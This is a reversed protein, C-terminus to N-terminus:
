YVRTEGRDGCEGVMFKSIPEGLRRHVGAPEGGDRVVEACEELWEEGWMAM